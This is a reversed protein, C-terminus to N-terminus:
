LFLRLLMLAASACLIGLCTWCFVRIWARRPTIVDDVRMALPLAEYQLPAADRAPPPVRFRLHPPLETQAGCDPCEVEIQYQALRWDLSRGCAQCHVEELDVPGGGFLSTAVRLAEHRARLAIM